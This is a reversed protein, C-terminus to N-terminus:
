RPSAPYGGDPKDSEDAASVPGALEQRLAPRRDRCHPNEQSRSGHPWRVRKPSSSDSLCLSSWVTPQSLVAGATAPGGCRALRHLRREGVLAERRYADSTEVVLLVCVKNACAPVAKADQKGQLSFSSSCM